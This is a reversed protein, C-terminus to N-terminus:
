PLLGLIAQDLGLVALAVGLVFGAPLSLVRLLPKPPRPKPDKAPRIAGIPFVLESLKDFLLMFAFLGAGFVVLIVAMLWAGSAVLQALGYAVSGLLVGILLNIAAHFWDGIEMKHRERM